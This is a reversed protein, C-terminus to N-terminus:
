LPALRAAPGARLRQHSPLDLLDVLCGQGRKDPSNRAKTTMRFSPVCPHARLSGKVSVSLEPPEVCHIRAAKISCMSLAHHLTLSLPWFCAAGVPCFSPSLRRLPPGPKTLGPAPLPLLLSGMPLVGGLGGQPAADTIRQKSSYPQPSCPILPAGQLNLPRPSPPSGPTGSSTATCHPQRRPAQLPSSTAPGRSAVEM